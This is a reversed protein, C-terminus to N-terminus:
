KEEGPGTMPQVSVLEESILKPYLHRIIPLAIKGSDSLFIDEVFFGHDRVNKIINDIWDFYGSGMCITCPIPVYTTRSGQKYWSYRIGTGKCTLCKFLEM